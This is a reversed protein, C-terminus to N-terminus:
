YKNQTPYDVWGTTTAWGTSLSVVFYAGVLHLKNHNEGIKEGFDVKNTDWITFKCILTTKRQKKATKQQLITSCAVALHGTREFVRCDIPNYQKDHPQGYSNSENCIDMEFIHLCDSAQAVLQTFLM